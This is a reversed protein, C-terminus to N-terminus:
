TAVTGNDLPKLREVEATPTEASFLSLPSAGCEGRAMGNLWARRGIGISSVPGIGTVLVTM